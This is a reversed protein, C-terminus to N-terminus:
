IDKAEKKIEQIKNIAELQEKHRKDANAKNVVLIAHISGPFYGLLTLVLNLLAQVPKGKMLVALPPILIAILYIM